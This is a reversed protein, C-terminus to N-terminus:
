ATPTVDLDLNLEQVVCDPGSGLWVMTRAESRAFNALGHSVRNQLRDAKVFSIQRTSSLFRIESIFHVLVSRDQTKGTAAMILNSCDTEVIIPKTTLQLALRLGEECAKVESEYPDDCGLLQRCACFIVQGTEDRLVMGSGATGDELKVSGDINLKVWGPIPRQWRKAPPATWHQTTDTTKGGVPKKGKLIEETSMEKVNRLTNLYNTLFRKSGETSPLPKEHTAENREYWARWLVLLFMDIMNSPIVNLVTQMWKTSSFQFESAPPIHWIGRM